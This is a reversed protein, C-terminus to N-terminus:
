NILVILHRIKLLDSIVTNCCKTVDAEYTM